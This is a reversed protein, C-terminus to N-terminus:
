DILTSQLRPQYEIAADIAFTMGEEFSCVYRQQSRKQYKVVVAWTQRKEPTRFTIDFGNHRLLDMKEFIDM